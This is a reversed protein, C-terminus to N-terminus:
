QWCQHVAQVLKCHASRLGGKPISCRDAVGEMIWVCTWTRRKRASQQAARPRPAKGGSLLLLLLLGDLGWRRGLLCICVRDGEVPTGATSSPLVDAAPPLVLLPLVSGSGEHSPASSGPSGAPASIGSSSLTVYRTSGYTNYSAQAVHHHRQADCNNQCPYFFQSLSISWCALTSGTVMLKMLNTHIPLSGSVTGATGTGSKFVQIYELHRGSKLARCCRSLSGINVGWCKSHTDQFGLCGLNEVWCRVGAAPMAIHHSELHWSM